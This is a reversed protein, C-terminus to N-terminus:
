KGRGPIVADLRNPTMYLIPCIDIGDRIVAEAGEHWEQLLIALEGVKGFKGNACVDSVLAHLLKRVNQGHPGQVVQRHAPAGSGQEWARLSPM